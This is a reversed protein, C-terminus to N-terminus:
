WEGRIHRQWEDVLDPITPDPGVSVDHGQCTACGLVVDSEDPDYGRQVYSAHGTPLAIVEAEREVLVLKRTDRTLDAM